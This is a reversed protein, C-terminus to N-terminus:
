KDAPAEEVTAWGSDQLEGLETELESDPVPNGQLDVTEGYGTAPGFPFEGGAQAMGVGLSGLTLALVGSTIGTAILGRRRTRPQTNM